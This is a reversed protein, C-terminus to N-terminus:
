KQEININIITILIKKINIKNDLGYMEQIDKNLKDKKTHHKQLNKEFIKEDKDKNNVTYVILDNHENIKKNYDFDKIICKYPNNIMHKNCKKLDHENEKEKKKIIKKIDINPKEITETKIILKQLNDNNYKNDIKNLHEIKKLNYSEKNIM